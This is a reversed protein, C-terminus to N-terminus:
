CWRLRPATTDVTFSNTNSDASTNGVADTATAKVTHVGDALATTPTFSWAGSADATTTGVVSGDVIVTVTSGAEATGSYPPKNNGTTSGNAPAVVVPAAPPATDVTFSNTNSDASTNGVADAATAKVTHVGDALATTPTFSWEGSADATTTGVATGDVIVTVTSGPEATGSYTPTKNSTVSGNAPTLVVPAAPPVTDVTFSNTNSDLGPIAQQM